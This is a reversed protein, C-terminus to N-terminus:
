ATWMLTSILRGTLMEPAVVVDDGFVGKITGALLAFRPDEASSVPSSELEYQASLTVDGCDSTSDPPTSTGNERPSSTGFAHLQFCREKAWPTLLQVYHDKVAQVSDQIAIRHNVLINANEPLSNVSLFTNSALTQTFTILLGGKDGGQIVDVATSTRIMARRERDRDMYELLKKSGQAGIIAQRLDEPM